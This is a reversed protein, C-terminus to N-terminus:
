FARQEKPTRNIKYIYELVYKIAETPTDFGGGSYLEVNNKNLYVNNNGSGWFQFSFEYKGAFKEVENLLLLKNHNEPEPVGADPTCEKCTGTPHLCTGEFLSICNDPIQPILKTM